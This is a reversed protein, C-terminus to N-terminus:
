KILTFGAQTSHVSGVVTVGGAVARVQLLLSLFIKEVTLDRAFGMDYCKALVPLVDARKLIV